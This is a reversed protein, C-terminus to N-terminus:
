VNTRAGSTLEDLEKEKILVMLRDYQYSPISETRIWGDIVTTNHYGLKFTLEAKNYKNLYNKLIKIEKTM